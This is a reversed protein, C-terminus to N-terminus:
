QNINSTGVNELVQLMGDLDDRFRQLQSVWTIASEQTMPDSPVVREQLLEFLVEALIARDIQDNQEYTTLLTSLGNRALQRRPNQMLETFSRKSTDTQNISM